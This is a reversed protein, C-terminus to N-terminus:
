LWSTLASVSLPAPVKRKAFCLGAKISSLKCASFHKAWLTIRILLLGDESASHVFIMKSSFMDVSLPSLSESMKCRFHATSCVSLSCPTLFPTRKCDFLLYEVNLLRGVCPAVVPISAVLHTSETSIFM